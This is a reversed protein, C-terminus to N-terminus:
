QWKCLVVANWNLSIFKSEIQELSDIKLVMNAHFTICDIGDM